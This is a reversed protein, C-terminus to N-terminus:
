SVGLREWIEERMLAPPITGGSLMAAHFVSLDFRDGMRRKAEERLEVIALKGLLASAGHTPAACCARVQALAHEPDLRAEDVLMAVADDFTMRGGHLGADIVALCARRMSELQLFLGCAPDPMTFGAEAMLEECYFAWGEAMVENRNARRLRTSAQSALGHRAHHGPYTERLVALPMAAACHGQAQRAQEAKDRRPDVATLLFLGTADADFPAPGQYRAVPFAVRDFLPMDAIEVREGAALPVLKRDIVCARAREIETLYAERVWNPEPARQRADDVLERWTRRRDVRQAEDELRTRAREVHDRGLAEHEGILRFNMRRDSVAFSGGARARVDKDLFDHLRLFGTRARSGAHELREAEGPFSRMLRRVVDDVFTPGRGALEIGAELLEPPVVDFHPQVAELYDPIAMLRAVAAEKREDLPAFPRNLLSQVGHFARQIFRSPTRRPLKSEELDARLVAIRSRLLAFDVRADLPLEDWPVSAVLRQELDRLWAARSEMGAPSDDPMFHDYDHIGAETAAVPHHKMFLEVFEESLATFTRITEIM